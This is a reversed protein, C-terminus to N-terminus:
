QTLSVRVPLLKVAWREAPPTVQVLMVASAAAEVTVIPIAASTYM